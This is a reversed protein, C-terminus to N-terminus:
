RGLGMNVQAGPGLQARILSVRSRSLRSVRYLKTMKVTQEAM